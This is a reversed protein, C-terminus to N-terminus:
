SAVVEHAGLAVARERREPERAAVLVRLGAAVGLVIAASAVGGGAGQVLVSEGPRLMAATFLMRYATLYATPLAAAEQWSLEAPKAVLNQPPAWVRQALTGPHVESLISRQPDLTEDGSWTPSSIVAHVIVERGDEDIGAADSGLVMPLRETSLGVGRLAWLDH